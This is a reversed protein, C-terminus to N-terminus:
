LLPTEGAEQSEVPKVQQGNVVFEQGVTILRIQAPLGGVWLYEPTDKLLKIPVFEVMDQDNVIKVGVTGNDALSLISPSIKYAQTEKIPIHVTATLGEKVTLGPNPATIEMEFTRTAESAAAAIFTVTGTISDGTLFEAKAETGEEVLAVQKETLFGAIEIPDLDVLDFIEDGVSVYDGVEVMQGNVVSDFPAKININSLEVRAQKLQAKATELQAEAEALRVRSTFGKETLERAANYQIQRQNVLQEAELVRASRDELRLRALIDGKKVRAGKEVQISAIQGDTEARVNVHRSARTRGTVDVQDQMMQASLTRVRVEALEGEKLTEEAPAQNSDTENQNSDPALAGSLVWLVAVITIVAAILVSKKM